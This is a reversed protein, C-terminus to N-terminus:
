RRDGRLIRHREIAESVRIARDYIWIRGIAPGVRAEGRGNVSRFHPSFRGWGFQRDPGGDLLEGDVVISIIKPGGDLIVSVEHLVNEKLIGDETKWSAHTRGDSLLMGFGGKPDVRLIIGRWDPARSDFLVLTGDAPPRRIEFGLSVGRRFDGTGHDPRSLDRGVFDPLEPLSVRHEGGEDLVRDLVPGPVPEVRGEAFQGWLGALLLPDIEHVRPLAKQTESLFYRGDDELLDPYSMRVHPDDDYLIIEPQSWDIVPGNQTSREVGGCLWVPNRDDYWRGGHNHFWYLYNGNRCRWAFNAARPHKMLRGDPYAMYAPTSWSRGRDRSYACVPHGDISRYVCFFTGDSLVSYSQEEAIPGGGAPTRLGIEGDPLTRWRIREPNKETELNDSCLLWGESRTFFGEGFGGVKHISVFTEGQHLFPRGVNWFFRIRGGYANQRDIEAERVPIPFRKASWSRGHDDSYKFVFYGQSDVRRCIGGPYPPDDAILERLNDTNHNFFCYIRGTAAKHLVAYSAEPGDAPEVDVLPEWSQGRDLSRCTVVHQGPEGERGSGTTFVCLWAGDHTKILYPQDSYGETPLSRGRTVHRSDPIPHFPNTPAPEASM